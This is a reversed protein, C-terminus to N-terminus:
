REFDDSKNKFGNVKRLSNKLAVMLEEKESLKVDGGIKVFDSQNIAEQVFKDQSVVNKEGPEKYRAIYANKYYDELFKYKDELMAQFAERSLEKAENDTVAYIHGENIVIKNDIYNGADDKQYMRLNLTIAADVTESLLCDVAKAFERQKALSLVKEVVENEVQKYKPGEVVYDITTAEAYGLAKIAFREDVREGNKYWIYDVDDKVISLTETGIQINRIQNDALGRKYSRIVEKIHGQPVKTYELTANIAENKVLQFYAHNLLKDDDFAFVVSQNNDIDKFSFDKIDGRYIPYAIIQKDNKEFIYYYTKGYKLVSDEEVSKLKEIFETNVSVRFRVDLMKFAKNIEDLKASIMGPQENGFINLDGFNLNLGTGDHFLIINKDATTGISYKRGKYYGSTHIAKDFQFDLLNYLKVIDIKETEGLSIILNNIERLILDEM